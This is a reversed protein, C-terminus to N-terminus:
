NEKLNQAWKPLSEYLKLVEEKTITLWEKEIRKIFENEDATNPYKRLKNDLIDWLNEIINLDPSNGPHYLLDVGVEEFWGVEDDRGAVMRSDHAPANDQQFIFDHKYWKELDELHDLFVNDLLDIYNFKTVTDTLVKLPGVGRKSICSWIHVKKGITKFRPKVNSPHLGKRKERIVRLQNAAKQILFASEDSFIVNKWQQVTWHGYKTYWERRQTRNLPSIYQKLKVRCSFLGNERLIKVCTDHCIDLDSDVILEQITTFKNRKAQLILHHEESKTLKRPRGSKAKRSFDGDSSWETYWRKLTKYSASPLHKNKTFIEAAKIDSLGSLQLGLGIGVQLDSFM